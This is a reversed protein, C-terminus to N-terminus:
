RLVEMYLKEYKKAMNEWTYKLATKRANISMKKYLSPNNYLKLIADKIPELNNPDYINWGNYEDIILYEQPPGISKSTIVPVGSALAELIVLSFHDLQRSPTLFVDVGPFYNEINKLYGTFVINKLGRKKITNMFHSAVKGGASLLIINNKSKLLSMLNIAIDFGKRKTTMDGAFFLIFSNQSLGFEKM